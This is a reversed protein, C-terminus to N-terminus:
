TRVPVLKMDDETVKLEWDALKLAAPRHTVAICAREPLACIRELVLQETHADLSSTVEDLLLIPAGSIVARALSIRQVQGESLGAGNEGLVTDLGNPLEDLYENVASVYVAQQLEEETAATNSLLINERITGSILLNGQPAYSFFKRSSRDVPFTGNESHFRIAGSEPRYVGLLLKLLTSKGIGSPGTIVTLGKTPLTCSVNRIVQKREGLKGTYSFSLDEVSISM